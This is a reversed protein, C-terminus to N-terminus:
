GHVHIWVCFGLGSDESTRMRPDLTPGLLTVLWGWRGLDSPNGWSVPSGTNFGPSAQAFQSPQHTQMKIIDGLANLHLPDKHGGPRPSSARTGTKGPTPPYVHGPKFLCPQSPTTLRAM